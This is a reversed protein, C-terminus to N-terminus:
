ENQRYVGPSIKFKKKFTKHFYAYSGFGCNEAIKELTMSTYKMQDIAASLRIEQAYEIMTKKVNSKFLHVSRSVSLGVQQAVDEIKFSTLAHEEIYRMMQTVVYPRSFSSATENVARELSLCMVKMLYDKLEKHEESPPRRGEIILHRWIALIKEDLELRSVSPKNSRDWWNDIWEGRCFLHYDGSNQGEEIKLEYHQGPKLLLLDGKEISYTQGKVVILANGETQLRFLYDTLGDKHLSYFQKTHYSYSCLGINIM